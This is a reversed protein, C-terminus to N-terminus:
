EVELDCIVEKLGDIFENKVLIYCVSNGIRETTFYGNDRMIQLHHSISAVSMNLSEAIESVCAKGYEFMLCLIRIRTEDGAIELLRAKRTLDRTLNLKKYAIQQM